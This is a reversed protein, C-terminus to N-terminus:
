SKPGAVYKRYRVGQFKAAKLATVLKEAKVESPVEFQLDRTFPKALWTGSGVLRGGYESAINRAEDDRAMGAGNKYECFVDFTIKRKPKPKAKKM